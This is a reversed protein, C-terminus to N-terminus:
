PESWEEVHKSMELVTRALAKVPEVIGLARL